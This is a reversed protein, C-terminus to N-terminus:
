GEGLCQVSVWGHLAPRPLQRRRALQTQSHRGWPVIFQCEKNSDLTYVFSTGNTWELDYYLKGLQHQIINFNRGNPWDYWLDVKQLDGSRNMFLISHFQHPWTAPVPDSATSPSSLTHLILLALLSFTTFNGTATAM